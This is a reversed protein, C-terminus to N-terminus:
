GTTIYDHSRLPVIAHKLPETRRVSADLLAGEQDFTVAWGSQRSVSHLLRRAKQNGPLLYSRLSRVGQAQAVDLIHQLLLRGVNRQQWGDVILFALEAEETETNIRIFRAGGISDSEQGYEDISVVVIAVHSTGDVNCLMDLEKGTLEKRSAFCRCYRTEDSLQTFGLAFRSRDDPCVPRFRLRTCPDLCHEIVKPVESMTTPHLLSMAMREFHLTAKLATMCWPEVTAFSSHSPRSHSTFLRHYDDPLRASVTTTSTKEVM